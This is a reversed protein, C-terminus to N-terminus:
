RPSILGSKPIRRVWPGAPTLEPPLKSIAARAQEVDPYIGHFVAHWPEGKFSTNYVASDSKMEHQGLFRKVSGHGRFGALQVTYRGSAQAQAWAQVRASRRDATPAQKQSAQESLKEVEGSVREVEAKLQQQGQRLQGSEQRQKEQETRMAQSEQEFQQGQRSLNEVADTLGAIQGSYQPAAGAEIAEVSQSLDAVSSGIAVVERRLLEMDNELEAVAALSGEGAAGPTKEMVTQPAAPIEPARPLLFGLIGAVLLLLLGLLTRRQLSQRLDRTEQDQRVQTVRLGDAAEQLTQRSDDFAALQTNLGDNAKKQSEVADDLRQRQEELRVEHAQLRERHQQTHEDTERLAVELRDIEDGLQEGSNALSRVREELLAADDIAALLRQDLTQGTEDLVDVREREDQLMQELTGANGEVDELRREPDLTLLSQVQENLEAVRDALADTHRTYNLKTKELEDVKTLADEIRTKHQLGDTSLLAIQEEVPPTLQPSESQEAKEALDSLRKELDQLQEALKTDQETLSDQGAELAATRQSLQGAAEESHQFRTRLEPIQQLLGNASLSPRGGPTASDAAPMADSGAEAERSLLAIQLELGEQATHLREVLEELVQTRELLLDFSHELGGESGGPQQVSGDDQDATGAVRTELGLTREQIGNGAHEVLSVTQELQQLRASLGETAGVLEAYRKGQSSFEKLKSRQKKLKASQKSFRSAEKRLSDTEKRFRVHQKRLKDLKKQVAALTRALQTQKKTLSSTLTALKKKLKAVRNELDKKSVKKRAM